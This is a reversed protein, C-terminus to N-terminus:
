HGSEAGCRGMGAEGLVHAPRGRRQGREEEEEERADCLDRGERM